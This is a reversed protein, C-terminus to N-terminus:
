ISNSLMFILPITVCSFLHSIIAMGAAVKTDKGYASPIVVTNLGLPMALSCLACISFTQEMPVFKAILLFILPYILLRIATVAYVSKISIIEKLNYRAVTMGTLIMAAPSMCNGLSNITNSLFQPVPIKTVGLVMGVIMGIFMPNLFAKLRHAFSRKEGDDGMLLVPAGWLYIGLWLVLTFIVYETYIEPFLASVVANGMFGFNPFCLGYLYINRVYSDRSCLKVVFVSIFIVVAEIIISGILLDKAVSLKEVTFNTIFTGLILAPLFLYNELKSLVRESNDPVLKLKVLIYGIIILLFLFLMQSLTANFIM